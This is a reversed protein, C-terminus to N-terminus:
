VEDESSDSEEAATPNVAEGNAESVGNGEKEDEEDGEVDRGTAGTLYDKMVGLVFNRADEDM